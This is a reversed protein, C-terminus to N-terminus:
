LSPTVAHVAPQSVGAISQADDFAVRTKDALAADVDVALLVAGVDDDDVAARPRRDRRNTTEVRHRPQVVRAEQLQALQRRRQEDKATPVNGALQALHHTAEAGLHGHDLTARVEKAVLIRRDRR